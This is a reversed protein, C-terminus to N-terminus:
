LANLVDIAKRIDRVYIGLGKEECEILIKRAAERADEDSVVSCSPMDSADPDERVYCVAGNRLADELYQEKFLAGKCVFLTGEAAELSNYTINMVQKAALDELSPDTYLAMLASCSPEGNISVLQGAMGLADIIDQVTVTRKM